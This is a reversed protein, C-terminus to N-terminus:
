KRVLSALDEVSLRSLKALLWAATDEDDEDTPLDYHMDWALLDTDESTTPMESHGKQTTRVEM